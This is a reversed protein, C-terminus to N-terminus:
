TRDTYNLCSWYLRKVFENFTDSKVAIRAIEKMRQVDKVAYLLRHAIESVEGFKMDLISIIIMIQGEAYGIKYGEAYGIEYGKAYGANFNQQAVPSLMYDGM